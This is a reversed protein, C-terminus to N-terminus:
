KKTLKKKKTISKKIVRVNPAILGASIIYKIAQDVTMSLKIVSRLPVFMLFGTTPNPTSPMFVNIMKENKKKAIEGKTESTLFGIAYMGKQPYEILVVEKFANSKTTAFTDIIQKVTSYITNLGPIKSLVGEVIKHYIRGFFSGAIAGIITFFVFAVILGVGPINSPIGFQGLPVFPKFINDAIGVVFWAAYLSLALPAIILLGSLFFNQIKKM